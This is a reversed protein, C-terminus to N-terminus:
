MRSRSCLIFCLCRFLFVVASPLGSLDFLDSSLSLSKLRSGEVEWLLDGVGTILRSETDRLLLVLDRLLEM